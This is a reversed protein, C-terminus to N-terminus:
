LKIIKYNNSENLGNSLVMGQHLYGKLSNDDNWELKIGEFIGSRLIKNSKLDLVNYNFKIVANMDESYTIILKKTKQPSDYVKKIENQLFIPNKKTTKLNKSKCCSFIFIVVTLTFFYLIKM